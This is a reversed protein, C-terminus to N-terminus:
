QLCFAEVHELAVRHNSTLYHFAVPLTLLEPPGLIELGDEKEEQRMTPLPEGKENIIVLWFIQHHDPSFERVGAQFAAVPQVGVEEEIERRITDAPKEGPESNGGPLVYDASRHGVQKRKMVIVQDGESSPVFIAGICCFPSENYGYTKKSM